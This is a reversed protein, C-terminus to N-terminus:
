SHSMNNLNRHEEKTSVTDENLNVDTWSDDMASPKNDDELIENGTDLDANNDAATLNQTNEQEVSDGNKNSHLNPM